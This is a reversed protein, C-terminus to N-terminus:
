EENSEKQIAGIKIRWKNRIRWLDPFPIIFFSWKKGELEPIDDIKKSIKLANKSHKAQYSEITFAEVDKKGSPDPRGLEDWQYGLLLSNVKELNKKDRHYPSLLAPISKSYKEFKIKDINNRVLRFEHRQRRRDTLFTKADDLADDIAMGFDSRIKSQGYHLVIKDDQVQIHIGDLGHIAMEPSTKLNM